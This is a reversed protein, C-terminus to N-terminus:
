WGFLFNDLDKLAEKLKPDKEKFILNELNIADIDRPMKKIDYSLELLWELKKSKATQKDMCYEEIIIRSYEDM